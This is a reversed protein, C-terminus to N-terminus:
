RKKKGTPKKGAPKTGTPLTNKTIDRLDLLMVYADFQGGTHSAKLGCELASLITGPLRDKHGDVGDLQAVRARAESVQQDFEQETM